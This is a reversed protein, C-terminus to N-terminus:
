AGCSSCATRGSVTAIRTPQEEDLPPARAEDAAQEPGIMNTQNMVAPTSPIILM